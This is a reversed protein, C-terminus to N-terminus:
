AGAKRLHSGYGEPTAQMHCPTCERDAYHDRQPQHCSLCLGRDPVLAAVTTERHCADCGIHANLSDAHAARVDVSHCAACDRRARHHDEHCSTCTVVAAPPDLSVAATHCQACRVDDHTAHTFGVARPRAAHDRVAVAVTLPRPATLETSAHCSECKSTAPAQHHCIQCGRPAEFTLRGHGRSTTHCTLCALQKHQEHSFTDAPAPRLSSPAPAARPPHADGKGKLEPEAAEITSTRQLAKTTDFGTPLHYRGGSRRNVEAHCGTCDSADVSAAHPQHCLSCREAVQKHQTGTHFPEARWDAHCGASACSKLADAPRTQEHPNHCMGCTQRHPDRAPDFDALRARMEHCGFCEKARPRLTGAASDRTALQPVEATFQHCAICHFGTQGAMKGLKIENGIHCGSQGCTSDVPVFRHVELGHCTTCQVDKLASSDSELHVRHGATTAIRQWKEKQGTVHCSACVRTPVKSHEGIENPRAAVWLYLQRMSAVISQQHCNHCSLSDHKSGAFRQFPDTMIHCGTCFGNDHQMYNWSVAGFGTAFLLVVAATALLGIRIGRPRSGIWAIIAARRPWTYVVAAIAVLIGVIFGVIQFWQPLNFLFRLVAAVGGPLPPRGVATEQFFSGAGTVALIGSGPLLTM